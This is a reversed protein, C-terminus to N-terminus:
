GGPVKELLTELSCDDYRNGPGAANELIDSVREPLDVCVTEEGWGNWRPM